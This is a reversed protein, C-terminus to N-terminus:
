YRKTLLVARHDVNLVQTGNKLTGLPTKWAKHGCIVLTQNCQELTERVIPNGQENNEPFDPPEHLILIVPHKQLLAQIMGRFEEEARRYPKGNSGIVGGLGAIKMGNVNKMDGDLYHTMKQDQFPHDTWHSVEFQDHNGPIGAVWQFKDAFAKWIDTVDGKGGRRDLDVSVYLDGALIVGIRDPPPIEGLESLAYVEDALMKGILRPQRGASEAQWKDEVGQLDSAVLIADVNDPLIDVTASLIQLSETVIERGGSTLSQYPIELLPESQISKIKM